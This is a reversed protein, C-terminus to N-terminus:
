WGERRQFAGSSSRNGGGGFYACTNPGSKSHTLYTNLILIICCGAKEVGPDQQTAQSHRQCTCCSASSQSTKGEQGAESKEERRQGEGLSLYIERHCNGM